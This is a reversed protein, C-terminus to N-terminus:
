MPLSKLKRILRKLDINSTILKSPLYGLTRDTLSVKYVLSHQLNVVYTYNVNDVIGVRNLYILSDDQPIQHKVDFDLSYDYKYLLTSLPMNAM